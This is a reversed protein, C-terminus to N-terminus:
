DEDDPYDDEPSWDELDPNDRICDFCVGDENCHNYEGCNECDQEM